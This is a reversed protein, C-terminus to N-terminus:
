MKQIHITKKNPHMERWVDHLKHKSLLTKYTGTSADSYTQSLSKSRDLETTETHNFDGGIILEDENLSHKDIWKQLKNFFTKRDSIFTPAYINTLTLNKDEIKINVLIIRSDESKHVNIVEFILKFFLLIATGRSQESGANLILKGEKGM